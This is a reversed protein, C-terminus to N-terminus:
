MISSLPACMKIVWVTHIYTPKPCDRKLVGPNHASDTGRAEKGRGGGGGWATRGCRNNNYLLVGDVKRSFQRRERTNTIRQQLKRKRKNKLETQKSAVEDTRELEPRTHEAELALGFHLLTLVHSKKTLFFFHFIFFFFM